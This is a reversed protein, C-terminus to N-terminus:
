LKSLLWKPKPKPADIDERPASLLRIIKNQQEVLMNIQKKIDQIETPISNIAELKNRFLVLSAGQKKIDNISRCGALQMALALEKSLCEMVQTVGNQGLAALGWLIPRGILVADAGLAIAKLIDSGSRIGGDILLPIKGNITKAIHPLVEITAAADELQRGGHNSIIIGNIGYDLAKIADLHHMIGKLIIPLKTTSKIRQIDEWSTLPNFQTGALNIKKTSNEIFNAPVCIEPLKFANNIDRLRNGMQPIDVTIVIAKYGSAEARKILQETITFDRHIHLQFWLPAQTSAAIEELPTSSMMSVTMICGANEAAKATGIEGETNALAHFATPAILIPTKVKTGFLDIDTNINKVERLVRPILALESYAEQNRRLTNENGSGGAIHDFIQNSLIKKADHELQKITRPM